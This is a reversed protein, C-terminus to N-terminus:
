SVKEGKLKRVGAEIADSIVAKLATESPIIIGKLWGPLHDELLQFFEDVMEIVWAKKEEGRKSGAFLKEAQPVLLNMVLAAIISPLM